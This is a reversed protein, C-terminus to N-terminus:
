DAAQIQEVARRVIALVNAEAPPENSRFTIAVIVAGVRVIYRAGYENGVPSTVSFTAAVGDDGLDVPAPPDVRYTAGEPSAWEGCALSARAVDMAPQIIESPYAVIRQEVRAGLTSSAFSAEVDGLKAGAGSFSASGCIGPEGDDPTPGSTTKMWDPGLNAGTLLLALLTSQVAPDIAAVAIRQPDLLGVATEVVREAVGADNADSGLYAITAILGGARVFFWRGDVRDGGALLITFTTALSEDGFGGEAFPGLEITTGDADTWERCLITERAWAMAEVAVPEPFAVVDQVVSAAPGVEREYEAEVEALKRSAGPFPEVGCLRMEDSRGRVPGSEVLSWGDPLSEAAPLMALLASEVAGPAVTATPTPSPRPTPTAEPLSTATRTAAPATPTATATPFAPAVGTATAPVVVTPTAVVARTADRTSPGSCAALAVGVILVITLRMAWRNV